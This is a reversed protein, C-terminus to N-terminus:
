KQTTLGRSALNEAINIIFHPIKARKLVKKMLIIDEKEFCKTLLSFAIFLAMSISVLIGLYSLYILKPIYTVIGDGEFEPIYGLLSSATPQIAFVILFSIIGAVFMKYIAFPMTFNFFKKSYHCLLLFMLFLSLFSATAAGEMGYYPILFINLLVNVIAVLVSIKLQIKVLKMASLTLSLMTFATNFLLGITFISMALAGPRYSAGYLVSLMDASFALLVIAIPITIFMTWRQSTETVKCIESLDNKGAIRSLVPLFITGISAPFILLVTALTTAISYVAVLEIAQSPDTLYGLLLKDSAGIIISFSSLLTLMIGFPFIEKLLQNQPIGEDSKLDLTQKRVIPFSIFTAFIFSAMYGGILAFVSPGYFYFFLFTFLLKSINEVNQIFQMSKIDARGQIYRLNVNYLNSLLIFVSFFRVAEPLLANQYIAGVLDASFWVVISLIIGLVTSVLYSLKLMHLMKGKEKRGEFYPIYRTLSAPFGLHSFVTAMGLIGMALYFLGIDDQSAMRAILIVYFFSIFKFFLQGLLGWFSGKAVEKSYQSLDEEGDM